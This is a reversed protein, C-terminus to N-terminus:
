NVVVAVSTYHIGNSFTVTYTGPARYVHSFSKAVPGCENTPVAIQSNISGDGYNLVYTGGGCVHATNAAAQVVVSLPAKGSAPAVSIMGGTRPAAMTPIATAASCQERMAAITRPGVAGFGTSAADGSTVVNYKIQWRKVAAETAADFSGSVQGEPYVGPDKALYQQLSSVQQGSSGRKLALTLSPCAPSSTRIQLQRVRNILDQGFRQLENTTQSAAVLPLAVLLLLAYRRIM